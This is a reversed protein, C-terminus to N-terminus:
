PVAPPLIVPAAPAPTVLVYPTVTIHLVADPEPAAPVPLKLKRRAADRDAGRDDLVAATGPRVRVTRPTGWVAPPAPLTLGAVPLASAALNPRVTVIVDVSGPVDNVDLQYTRTGAGDPVTLTTPADPIDLMISGVGPGERFPLPTPIPQGEGEGNRPPVPLPEMGLFAEVHWRPGRMQADTLAVRRRFVTRGAATGRVLLIHEADLPVVDTLGPPFLPDPDTKQAGDRTYGFRTIHKLGLRNFLRSPQADTHMREWTLAPRAAWVSCPLACLLAFLFFVYPRTM